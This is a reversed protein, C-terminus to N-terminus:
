GHPAVESNVGPSAVTQGGMAAGAAGAMVALAGPRVLATLPGQDLLVGDALVPMQPDSHITLRKVRYHKIRADEAGGGASQVAYSILDLKGMDSFVFVDLRGDNCSVDPSIQFRPGIYPMNAILVM